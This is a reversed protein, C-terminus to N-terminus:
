GSMCQQLNSVWEEVLAQCQQLLINQPDRRGGVVHARVLLFISMALDRPLLWSGFVRWSTTIFVPKLDDNIMEIPIGHETAGNNWAEQWAILQNM